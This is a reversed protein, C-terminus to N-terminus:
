ARSGADDLEDLLRSRWLLRSHHDVMKKAFALEKPKGPRRRRRGLDGTASTLSLDSHFCLCTELWVLATEEIAVGARPETTQM